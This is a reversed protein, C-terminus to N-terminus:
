IKGKIKGKLRVLSLGINTKLLALNEFITIPFTGVKVYVTDSRDKYWIRYNMKAMWHNINKLESNVYYKGHTELSIVAPRSAMHKIVYWEAGEIDVSVLDFDGKDIEDFLISKATFKDEDVVKYEDNILAPSAELASIFTSSARRSLEVTGNSDYVAAEVYKVKPYNAFYVKMQAVYNPDAEVLTTPIGAKIYSLVNSEEPLYVGVECINQPTFGKETLKRHLRIAGKNMENHNDNQRQHHNKLKFKHWM